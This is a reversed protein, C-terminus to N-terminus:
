FKRLEEMIEKTSKGLRSELREFLQDEKGRIYCLDEDTLCPHKAKLQSKLENWYSSLIYHLDINVM